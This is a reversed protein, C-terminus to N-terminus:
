WDQRGAVIRPSRRYASVTPDDTIWFRWGRRYAVSVGVRPGSSIAAPVAGPVLTWGEGVPRGSDALTWGMTQGLNGPGRALAVEAVGGRRARAEVMGAVVRGSRFLVASGGGPEGCTVNGCLHIGYSRYLYLTGPAAFLDRTHPRPGGWAHAAPDDIGAYAEVETIAVSVGAHTLVSGLLLPALKDAPLSFDIM